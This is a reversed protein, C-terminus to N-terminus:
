VAPRSWVIDCEEEEKKLTIEQLIFDVPCGDHEVFVTTIKSGGNWQHPVVRKMYKDSILNDPILSPLTRSPHGICLQRLGIKKIGTCCFRAPKELRRGGPNQELVSSAVWALVYETSLSYARCRSM